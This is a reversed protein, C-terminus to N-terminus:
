EHQLAIDASLVGSPDNYVITVVSPDEYAKHTASSTTTTTRTKIKTVAPASAIKVPMRTTVKPTAPKTPAAAPPAKQVTVPKTVPTPPPPLPNSAVNNYAVFVRNPILDKSGLTSMAVRTPEENQPSLLSNPDIPKRSIVLRLKETGPNQDFAFLGDQPLIIEQGRKIQNSEKREADPFLVAEEGQSGSRLVIYAYGDVNPKVHFRIKDGAHFVTKNNARTQRGNHHLEIWYQIGTNLSDSPRDLQEFYLGKAGVDEAFVPCSTTATVALAAMMLAWSKM